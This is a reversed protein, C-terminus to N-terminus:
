CAPARSSCYWRSGSGCSSFKLQGDEYYTRGVTGTTGPYAISTAQGKLDYGYGVTAGAGNTSNTLRHLSDWRGYSSRGGTTLVGCRDRDM